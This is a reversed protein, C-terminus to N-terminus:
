KNFIKIIGVGLKASTTLLLEQFKNINKYTKYFYLQSQKIIKLKNIKNINKDITISNNHIVEINNVVIIKKNLEKAKIGFINEEYYLFVNEDFEKISEFFKSSLLFFCGSVTDVISTETKYHNDKYLNHKLSLKNIIPINNCIENTVSPIKWGRSIEGHTNINPALIAIDEKLYKTLNTLDLESKIEVDSNSVFINCEKYKQIAYKCGINIASSYGKNVQAKIVTVKNINLKNIEEVSNDTSNNDIIIIEEIRNYDKINNILNITTKYDNYNVILYINKM